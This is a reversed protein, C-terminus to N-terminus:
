WLDHFAGANALRLMCAQWKPGHEDIEVDWSDLDCQEHLLNFHAQDPAMNYLAVMHIVYHGKNKYSCAQVGLIPCKGYSVETDRPLRDALWQHNFAAYWDSLPYRSLTALLLLKFVM